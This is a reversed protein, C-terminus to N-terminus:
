IHHEELFHFKATYVIFKCDKVTSRIVGTHNGTSIYLKRNLPIAFPDILSSLNSKRTIGQNCYIIAYKYYLCPPSPKFNKIM